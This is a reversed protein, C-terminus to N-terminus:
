ALIYFFYSAVILFAHCLLVWMPFQIHLYPCLIVLFLTHHHCPVFVSSFPIVSVVLYLGPSETLCSNKLQFPSSLFTSTLFKQISAVFM